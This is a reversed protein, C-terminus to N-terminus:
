YCRYKKYARMTESGYFGIFIMCIKVEKKILILPALILGYLEEERTRLRKDPFRNRV